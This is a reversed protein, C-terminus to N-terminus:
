GIIVTETHGQPGEKGHRNSYRAYIHAQRALQELPFELVHHCSSSFEMRRYEDAHKPTQGVDTVALYIFSGAAFQPKRKKGTDSNFIVIEFRRVGVRRVAITPVINPIGVPTRTSSRQRVGFVERDAVPVAPNYRINENLFIRWKSQLTLKVTDRARRAGTTASDPNAVTEAKEIYTNYIPTIVELKDPSIGYETMSTLAKNYAVKIYNTFGSNTTPFLNEPM